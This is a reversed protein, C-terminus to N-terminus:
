TEVRCGNAGANFDVALHFIKKEYSQFHLRRRDFLKEMTAEVDIVLDNVEIYKMNFRDQFTAIAERKEAESAMGFNWAMVCVQLLQKRMESGNTVSFLPTIFEYFANSYERNM